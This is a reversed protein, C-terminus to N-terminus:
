DLRVRKGKRLADRSFCDVRIHRARAFDVADPSVEPCSDLILHELKDHSKLVLAKVTIGTIRTGVLVFKRLCPLYEALSEVCIDDIDCVNGLELSVISKLYGLKGLNLLGGADVDHCGSINLEELKGKNADLILQLDDPEMRYVDSMSLNSLNTLNNNLTNTQSVSDRFDCEHCGSM